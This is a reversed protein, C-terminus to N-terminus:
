RFMLIEMDETIDEVCFRIKFKVWMPTWHEPGFLAGLPVLGVVKAKHKEAIWDESIRGL